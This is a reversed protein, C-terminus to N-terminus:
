NCQFIVHRPLFSPPIYSTRFLLYLRLHSESESRFPLAWFYVRTRVGVHGGVGGGWSEADTDRRIGSFRPMENDNRHSLTDITDHYRHCIAVFTFAGM